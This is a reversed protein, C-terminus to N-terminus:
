KKIKCNFKKWKQVEETVCKLNAKLKTEDWNIKGLSLALVAGNNVKYPMSGSINSIAKEYDSSVTGKKETPM